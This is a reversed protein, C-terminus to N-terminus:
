QVATASRFLKFDATVMCGVYPKSAYLPHYLYWGPTLVFTLTEMKKIEPMYVALLNLRRARTDAQISRTSTYTCGGLMTSNPKLLLFVTHQINADRANHILFSRLELYYDPVNIRIYNVTFSYAAVVMGAQAKLTPAAAAGYGNASVARMGNRERDDYRAHPSTFRYCGWGLLDYIGYYGGRLTIDFVAIPEFMIRAGFFDDAPTWDNQIGIEIKASEWLIGSRDWLKARYYLRSDLNIGLPNYSAGLSPSFYLGAAAASHLVLVTFFVCLTKIM